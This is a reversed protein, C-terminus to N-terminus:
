EGPICEGCEEDGQNGCHGGLKVAGSADAEGLVEDIHEIALSENGVFSIVFRLDPPRSSGIRDAIGELGDISHLVPNGMILLGDFEALSGLGGIEALAANGRPAGCLFGVELTGVRVLGPLGLSTLSPNGDVLAYGDITHLSALADLSELSENFQVWLVGVRELKELGEATTLDPNQSLTLQGDVQRLCRLFELDVLGQAGVDVFGEVHTYLPLSEAGQLSKVSLDGELVLDPCEPDVVANATTESASESSPGTSSGVDATGGSGTQGPGAGPAPGCAVFAALGVAAPCRARKSLPNTSMSSGM